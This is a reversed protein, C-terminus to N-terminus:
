GHNSQPPWKVNINLVHDFMTTYAMPNSNAWPRVMNPGHDVQGHKSWPRGHEIQCITQDNRIILILRLQISLYFIVSICIENLAFLLQLNTNICEKDDPTEM